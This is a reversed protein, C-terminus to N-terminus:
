EKELDKIIGELYGPLKANIVLSRGDDFYDNMVMRHSHLFQTNLGYKMKFKRNIEMDGYKIDGVIPMEISNLHARIQHSRGTILQIEVLTYGKFSKLPKIVTMVEKSGEQPRDIIRSKNASADKTIYGKLTTEKELKGKILATYFKDTNKSRIKENIKILARNNKAIIVIGSTNRDLRNCCAPKFTIEKRPDYANTKMLYLIGRDIVSDESGHTIVNAGKNVALIEEDEYAIDLEQRNDHKETNIESQDSHGAFKELTEDSLYLNLLDGERLKYSAEAKKGNLKVIKKRIIKEVFGKGSNKLYKMLFRDLRQNDENLGIKIEIM